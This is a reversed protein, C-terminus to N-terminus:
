GIDVGDRDRAVPTPLCRESPSNSVTSGAKQSAAQDRNEFDIAKSLGFKVTRADESADGPQRKSTRGERFSKPTYSDVVM